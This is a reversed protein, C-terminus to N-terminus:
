RTEKRWPSLRTGPIPREQAGDPLQWGVALSDGGSGDKQLAEVYYRRGASLAVPKSQQQPTKTWERPETYDPVSAILRKNAPNEDTSIWLECNDDGAIWFVYDGTAPPHVYGRMLTGYENAFDSPAEFIKELSQGSPKDPFGAHGRLSEVKGGGVGTWWERLITGAARARSSLYGVSEGRAKELDRLEADRPPGQRTSTVIASAVSFGKQATLLRVRKAGASAFKPLPVQIWEWRDPEKPGTHDRHTKKVSLYPLKAATWHDSGPEAPLKEKPDKPNPVALESVQLCFAFTELCCGGVHVWCRYESEPLVSFDFQVYTDKNVGGEVDAQSIWCSEMRNHRGLKFTASARLDAAALVFEKPAAEARAAIAGRNRRVFATEAYDKLLTRYGLVAEVALAPDFFGAESARFLARAEGERADEKARTEYKAPAGEAGLKKAAELDGEILCFAAAARADTEPKKAARNRFAEAISAAAVEGYPVTLASEEKRVEIRHADAAHVAGEISARTGGDEAYSFAIKQGKASKSLVAVAEGAVPAALRLLELDSEAESRLAADTLGPVAAELAKLAAAYDRARAHAMAEAWRARLTEAEKSAGAAPPPPVPKDPVVLALAGQLDATLEPFGWKKVRELAAVAEGRRRAEIAARKVEPFRGEATRRLSLIRDSAAQTWEAVAHRGKEGAWLEIAKSFEERALLPAAQDELRSLEESVKRRLLATEKRAEEAIAGAGAAREAEQFARMQGALDSPHLKRYEVATRFERTGSDGGPAPPPDVSKPPTSETPPAPAAATTPGPGGSSALIAVLAVAGAAVLGGAVVLITRSGSRSAVARRTDPPPPKPIRSTSVKRYSRSPTELPPPGQVPKCAVCFARNDLVHAKGKTFEDELLIRGCGDCYVVQRGM